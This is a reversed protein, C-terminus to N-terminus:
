AIPVMIYKVCVGVCAIAQKRNVRAKSTHGSHSEGVFLNGSPFKECARRATNAKDERRDSLSVCREPKRMGVCAIAQKRHGSAESTHGSHSEFGCARHAM